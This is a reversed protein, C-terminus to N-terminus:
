VRRPSQTSRLILSLGILIIIAPGIWTWSWHFLFTATVATLICGVMFSGLAASDVQGTQQYRRYATEFAGLAPILIFLAWWNTLPITLRGANNLLFLVGLAILVIGGIWSTARPAPANNLDPSETPQSNENM